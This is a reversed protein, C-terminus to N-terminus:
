TAKRRCIRRPQSLRTAPRVFVHRRVQLHDDYKITTTRGSLGRNTIDGLHNNVLLQISNLTTRDPEILITGGPM